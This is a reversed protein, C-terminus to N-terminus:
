VVMGSITLWSLGFPNLRLLNFHHAVYVFKGTFAMYIYIYIYMYIYIYIYIYM